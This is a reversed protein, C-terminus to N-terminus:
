QNKLEEIMQCLESPVGYTDQERLAKIAMDLATGAGTGWIYRRQIDELNRLAEKTTM